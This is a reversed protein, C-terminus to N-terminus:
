GTYGLGLCALFDSTSNNMAPGQYDRQLSSTKEELDLSKQQAFDREM